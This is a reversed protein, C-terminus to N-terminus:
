GAPPLPTAANTYEPRAFGGMLIGLAWFVVLNKERQSWPQGQAWNGGSWLLLMVVFSLYGAADVNSVDAGTLEVLAAVPGLALLWSWFYQTGVRVLGRIQQSVPENM